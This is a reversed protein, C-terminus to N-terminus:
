FYTAHCRCNITEEPFDGYMTDKPFRMIADGVEFLDNIGIVKGNINAHTKRTHKDIFAIWRKHVKGTKLADSFDAYEAISNAENEADFMARDDSLYWEDDIHEMTAQVVEEAYKQTYGILYDDLGVYQSIEVRYRFALQEIVYDINAALDDDYMSILAFFFLMMEEFKNAMDIRKREEEEPLHMERFYQEYPIARKKPVTNLEDTKILATM